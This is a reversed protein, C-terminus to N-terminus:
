ATSSLKEVIHLACDIGDVVGDLKPHSENTAPDTDCPVIKEGDYRYAASQYLTRRDSWRAKEANIDELVTTIASNKYEKRPDGIMERIIKLGTLFGRDYEKYPFGGGDKHFFKETVVRDKLDQMAADLADRAEVVANAGIANDAKASGAYKEIDGWDEDM